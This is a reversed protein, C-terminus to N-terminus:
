VYFMCGLNSHLKDYPYVLTKFAYRPLNQLYDYM